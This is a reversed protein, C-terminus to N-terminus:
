YAKFILPLYSHYKPNFITVSTTATILSVSNSATVIATYSGVSSYTHTVLQGQASLGDGLSWTYTLVNGSSVAASLTTINGLPTPGDNQAHLGSIPGEAVPGLLTFAADGAPADYHIDGAVAMGRFHKNDGGTGAALGWDPIGNQIAEIQV